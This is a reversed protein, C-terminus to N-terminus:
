YKVTIVHKGMKIVDGSQLIHKEHKCMQGNIETGYTSFDHLYLKKGESYIECHRRSVSSDEAILPFSGTSRGIRICKEKRINCIHVCQQNGYSVTFEIEGAKLKGGRVPQKSSPVEKKEVPQALKLILLVIVCVLVIAAIGLAINPIALGFISSTSLMFGNFREAFSASKKVYPKASDSFLLLQMEAPIGNASESYAFSEWDAFQYIVEQLAGDYVGRTFAEGNYGLQVLRNQIDQISTDSGSDKTLYPILTYEGTSAPTVLSDPELSVRWWVDFSVGDNHYELENLECLKKVALMTQIDLESSNLIETNNEIASSYFGKEFLTGKFQAMEVDKEIPQDGYRWLVGSQTEASPNDANESTGLAEAYGLWCTLLALVFIVSLVRKKTMTLLEREAEDQHAFSFM